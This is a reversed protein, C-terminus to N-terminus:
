KTLTPPGLDPVSSEGGGRRPTLDGYFPGIKGLYELFQADEKTPRRAVFIQGSSAGHNIYSVINDKHTSLLITPFKEPLAKVYDIVRVSESVALDPTTISNNLVPWEEIPGLGLLLATERARCWQSTLIKLHQIGNKRFEEGLLRISHRGEDNMNRQKECRNLDFDLPDVNGPALGHRLLLVVNGEAIMSWLQDQSYAPGNNVAHASAPIFLVFLLFALLRCLLKRSHQGQIRKM